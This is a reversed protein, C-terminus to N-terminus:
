SMIEDETLKKLLKVRDCFYTGMPALYHGTKSPNLWFALVEIDVLYCINIALIPNEVEIEYVELNKSDDGVVSREDSLFNRTNILNDFVFIKDVNPSTWEGLKYILIFKDSVYSRSTIVSKLEGAVNRVIKYYKNM